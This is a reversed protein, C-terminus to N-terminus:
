AQARAGAGGPYDPREVVFLRGNEDFAMAVPSNVAPEAAILELRFGPKVRFGAPANTAPPKAVRRVATSVSTSEAAWGAPTLLGCAALAWVASCRLIGDIRHSNGM